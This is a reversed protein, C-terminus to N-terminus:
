RRRRYAKDRTRLALFEAQNEARNIRFILRLGGFRVSWEGKRDRRLPKACSAGEGHELIELVAARIRKRTPLDQRQLYKAAEPAWREDYM